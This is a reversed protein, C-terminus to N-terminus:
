KERLVQEYLSKFEAAVPGLAYHRAAELCKGSMGRVLGPNETIRCLAQTLAQEDGAPVLWGTDGQQVLEPMGGARSALVPKGYSYAEIISMGFPEPWISPAAVVDCEAILREWDSRMVTGRFNIQPHSGYQERLEAERTGWGAIDLHLEPHRTACQTFASCLVHVGKPGELRGLYLVRVQATPRTKPLIGQMSRQDLEELRLGHSNPIVRQIAKPFFRRRTLVDLTYRSPATVAAVTESFRARLWSYWRLGLAGQSAWSGVRGSLTGEPSMLEYDHCTQVVPIGVSQAAAWLSPSLGRLKHVNLIDPREQRLIEQVTRFTHPNWVDILQWLVKKWVPQRDKDAVWYLNSPRFRRVQIGDIREMTAQRERQTSVVLLDVGEARLGRALHWVAMTGGQAWDSGFQYSALAVKM